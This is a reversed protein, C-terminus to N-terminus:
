NGVPATTPNKEVADLGARPAVWRGKCHTGPVTEKHTFRGHQSASWEGEDLASALFAHLYVEMEGYPEMAHYKILARPYTKMVHYKTLCLFL